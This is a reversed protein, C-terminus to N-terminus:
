FMVKKKPHLSYSADVSQVMLCMPAYKQDGHRQLTHAEWSNQILGIDRDICIECTLAMM